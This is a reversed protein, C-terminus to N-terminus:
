MTGSDYLDIIGTWRDEEISSVGFCRGTVCKGVCDNQVCDDGTACGEDCSQYDCRSWCCCRM